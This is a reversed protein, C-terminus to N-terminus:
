GGRSKFYKDAIGSLVPIKSQRITRGFRELPNSSTWRRSAKSPAANGRAKDMAAKEKATAGAFAKFGKDALQSLATFGLVAGALARGAGGGRSLKAALKYGGKAGLYAGAGKVAGRLSARADSAGRAKEQKYAGYGALGALGAAGTKFGGAKYFSSTASKQLGRQIGAQAKAQTIPSKRAKIVRQTATAKKFASKDAQRSAEYGKPTGRTSLFRKSVLDDDMLGHKQADKLAKMSAKEARSLTVGKTYNPDKIAKILRDYGVDSITPAKSVPPKKLSSPTPPKPIGSLKARAQKVKDALSTDALKGGMNTTVKSKPPTSVDLSPGKSPLQTSRVVGGLNVSAGKATKPPSLLNLKQPKTKTKTLTQTTSPGGSGTISKPAKPPDVKVKAKVIARSSPGSKVPSTPQPTLRALGVKTRQSSPVIDKYRSTMAKYSRKVESRAAKDGGAARSVINDVSKVSALPDKVGRKTPNYGADGFGRTARRTTYTQIGQATPTGTKGIYGKTQGLRFQKLQSASVKTEKYKKLRAAIQRSVTRQSVAKSKAPKPQQPVTTDRYAQGTGSPAGTGVLEETGTAGGARGGGLINSAAQRVTPNKTQTRVTDATGKLGPSKNAQELDKAYQIAKPDGEWSTGASSRKRITRGSTNVDTSLSDPRRGTNAVNKFKEIDGATLNGPNGKPLDKKAENIFKNFSKM